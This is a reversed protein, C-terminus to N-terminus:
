VIVEMGMKQKIKYLNHSAKKSTFNEYLEFRRRVTEFDNKYKDYLVWYKGLENCIRNYTITKLDKWSHGDKMLGIFKDHQNKSSFAKHLDAINSEDPFKPNGKEKNNTKIGYVYERIPTEGSLLPVTNGYSKSMKRGDKGPLIYHGENIIPITPTLVNSKYVYNIKETIDNTIEIHQLQDKGVPVYDTNFLLIDAAMLVPYNFMGAFIGKDPDKGRSINLETEQKYTHNRNLLGKATYCSLMWYLEFIEPIKSQRYFTITNNNKILIKQLSDFISLYSIMLDKINASLEEPPTHGTLAHHDAIFLLVDINRNNKIFDIITRISGVYNGIHMEGSPKVGTLYTVSLVFVGKM